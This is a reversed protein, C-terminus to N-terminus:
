GAPQVDGSTALNLARHPNPDYVEVQVDQDRYAIYVSTPASPSSIVLGGDSTHEIVEGPKQSQAKLADYAHKFPYTGITLYKPQPDAVDVGPPLYRVYSRGDKTITLELTTNDQPGAWYVPHGATAAATALDDPSAAVPGLSKAGHSKAAHSNSENGSDHIFLIWVLFGVAAAVALVAGVRAGRLDSM